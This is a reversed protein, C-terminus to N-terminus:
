AQIRKKDRQNRLSVGIWDHLIFYQQPKDEDASVMALFAISDSTHFEPQLGMRNAGFLGCPLTFNVNFQRNDTSRVFRTRNGRKYFLIKQQYANRNGVGRM